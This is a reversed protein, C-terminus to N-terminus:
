FPGYRNTLLLEVAQITTLDQAVDYVGLVAEQGNTYELPLRAAINDFNSNHPGGSSTSPSIDVGNKRISFTGGNCVTTWLAWSTGADLVHCFNGAADAVYTNDDSYMILTYPGTLPTGTSSCILIDGSATKKVVHYATWSPGPYWPTGFTLYQQSASVFGIAAQGNVANLIKTPQNGSTAQVVSQSLPSEDPWVAISGAPANNGELGLQNNPWYDFGQTYTTWTLGTPPAGTGVGGYWSGVTNLQAISLAFPYFVSEFINNQPTNFIGLFGGFYLSSADAPLNLTVNAVGLLFGDMLLRLATGDYAIVFTHNSGSFPATAQFYVNGIDDILEIVGPNPIHLLVATNVDSAAGIGFLVSGSNETFITGTWFFVWPDAGSVGVDLSSTFFDGADDIAVTPLGWNPDDALYIPPDTNGATLDNAPTELDKFLLVTAQDVPNSGKLVDRSAYRHTFGSVPPPAPPTFPPLGGGAGSVDSLGRFPLPALVKGTHVETM